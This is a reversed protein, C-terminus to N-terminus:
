LKEIDQEVVHTLLDEVCGQGPIEIAPNLEHLPYLVFAREQIRPHPLTLVKDTRMEGKFLLLDLDVTRASNAASPRVRGHKAEIDMMAILLDDATLETQVEMVANIYDPQLDSTGIPKSRYSSSIHLVSTGKLQNIEKKVRNLCEIPQGLNAGFGIYVLDTM